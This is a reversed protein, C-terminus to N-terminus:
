FSQRARGLVAVAFVRLTDLKVALAVLGVHKAVRVAMTVVAVIIRAILYHHSRRLTIAIFRPHVSKFSVGACKLGFDDCRIRLRIRQIQSFMILAASAPLRSAHLLIAFTELCLHRTAAAAFAAVASILTEESSIM